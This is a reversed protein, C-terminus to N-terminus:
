SGLDHIKHALKAGEAIGKGLETLYVQGGTTVIVRQKATLEDILKREEESFVKTSVAGEPDFARKNYLAVLVKIRATLPTTERVYNIYEELPETKIWFIEYRGVKKSKIVPNEMMLRSLLKAITFHHSGLIRALETPTSPEEELLSLIRERLAEEM